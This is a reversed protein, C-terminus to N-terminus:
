KGVERLLNKGLIIRQTLERGAPCVYSCCGCEICGKACLAQLAQADRKQLAQELKLPQLRMPCVM